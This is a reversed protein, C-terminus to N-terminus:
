ARRRAVLGLALVALSAGGAAGVTSCGGKSEGGDSGDVDDTGDTMGSDELDTDDVPEYYEPPIIGEVDCWVRTGDACGARMTADIWDLYHDVRTDVGGTEACDTLDYAHSTVGVIRMTESTGEGIWAFSPGGSDGHCKRVDSEVEGVKFEYDAIEVLSSMGQQKIQVSGPPPASGRDVHVQQGWGVVALETGEALSAAEDSTVVIAPTVDLVPEELFVLAIDFNENLGIDLATIDWTDHMITASARVADAPMEQPAGFMEYASLDAQRTWAYELELDFGGMGGTLAAPDVCHAATLVVDPAILTSSCIFAQLPFEQGFAEIVTDIMLGGTMPYDDASADEGNIISAGSEKGPLETDAADHTLPGAHAVGLAAVLLGLSVSM